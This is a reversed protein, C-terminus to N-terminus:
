NGSRRAVQYILSNTQKGSIQNSAGPTLGDSKPEDPVKTLFLDLKMKFEEISCNRTNRLSKPMSNFLRPGSVQFSQNRMAQVNAKGKNRAPISCLRGNRESNPSWSVGCNPSLGEMIKWVYLIQYREMRRQESNMKLSKLREWYNLQGMGPLKRTFDRLLKEIKDLNPGEQPMWLQSCYDIHPQVLSNFMHRMFVPNRTYFTRYLWGCKQRVKKCINEIHETFSADESMKIGLDRLTEFREIVEDFNGTFYETEDKLQSNAGYRLVQFKKNNFEMNNKEGWSYLKNLEEQLLEVDEESKIKQKLKTDDVYVLTNANIGEAIDSIYILFIIPGIVSGQPVGSVLSSKSSKRGKVLVQIFRGSLFNFLWRGIKGRIGLSKLKHFIIGHDCKDFAKSFDLYITDLNEGNELAKLIEDQQELLQSLTSRGARSGHQNQDMKKNFELYNVMTKRLVREFTKVVHSTLSIPRFNIPESRSGGKHIPIVYALKLIAPIHGSDYSSQFINSLIISVTRKAAKLMVAPIGDPGPAAGNSLSDLCQSFDEHSFQFEKLIAQGKPENRRLQPQSLIDPGDPIRYINQNGYPIDKSNTRYPCDTRYPVHSTDKPPSSSVEVDARYQSQDEACAHVREATCDPCGPEQEKDQGKEQEQEQEQANSGEDGPWAPPNDDQDDGSECPSSSYGEDDKMFFDEGKKVEYGAMPKSAASEYQEKLMESQEFPDSTMEGEKTQFAAIESHTKSFRKAYSYFFKPNKKLKKIADEEVKVRRAKYAEDLEKEVERLETM